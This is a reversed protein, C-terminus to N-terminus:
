VKAPYYKNLLNKLYEPGFGIRLEQIIRRISTTDIEFCAGKEIEIYNSKTNLFTEIETIVKKVPHNEPNAINIVQNPFLKKKLIHDIISYADDIDIINRCAYTWLDFNVENKVHNFFFNLVTNPNHSRGALNSIRFIQFHKVQTKIFDEIRLKHKVYAAEKEQPDYISCTSFYVFSTSNYKRVSEELLKMEREYAESNKTKSNSVGSAFVLFDNNRSYSEFRKAVLGNGIVM